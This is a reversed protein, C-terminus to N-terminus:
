VWETIRIYFLMILSVTWTVLQQLVIIVVFDPYSGNKSHAPQVYFHYCVLLDLKSASKMPRILNAPDPFTKLDWTLWIKCARTLVNKKKLLFYSHMLLVSRKTTSVSSKDVATPLMVSWSRKNKNGFSLWLYDWRM